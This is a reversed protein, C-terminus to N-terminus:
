SKWEVGRVWVRVINRSATINVTPDGDVLVLDALMGERIVGRDHLGFSRAPVVTAANLAEVPSLGAAVLHELEDHISSGFPVRAPVAPQLNADTGALISVGAAHLRAVTENAAAFSLSSNSMTRGRQMELVTARMMTLTPCVAVARGTKKRKGRFMDVLRDNAPVDLPAHHIQEVGAALGEAYAAHLVVRRGAAHAAKVLAAQAAQTLGPGPASGIVKIFDARWPQAVQSRVFAAAQSIDRILLGANEPGVLKAHTSNPSTAMFSATVVATLGTHNRLSACLAPDPCFANVATTVGFRTLEALHITSLLHAHSDILGPLLTMGQGDYTTITNPSTAAAADVIVTSNHPHLSTGDFIRVNKLAFRRGTRATSCRTGASRAATNARTISQHDINAHGRDNHFSCCHGASVLWSLLYLFYITLATFTPM